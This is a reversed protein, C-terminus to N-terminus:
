IKCKLKVSPCYTVLIPPVVDNRENGDSPREGSMDAPGPVGWMGEVPVMNALQEPSAHADLACKKEIAGLPDDRTIRCRTCSGVRWIDRVRFSKWNKLRRRNQKETETGLHPTKSGDHNQETQRGCDLGAVDFVFPPTDRFRHGGDAFEEIEFYGLVRDNVVGVRDIYTHQYM